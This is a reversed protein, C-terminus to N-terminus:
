RPARLCICGSRSTATSRPATASRESRTVAGPWSPGARPGRRRRRKDGAPRGAGTRAPSISAASPRTFAAAVGTGGAVALAPIVLGTALAAATIAKRRTAQARDLLVAVTAALLAAGAAALGALAAAFRRVRQVLHM